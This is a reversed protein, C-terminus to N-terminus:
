WCPISISFEAGDASNAVAIQGNMNKEVIARTMYLGLGSGTLRDRTSFFPDFIRDIIEDSIGGGNDAIRIMARKDEATVVVRITGESIKRQQLADRSNNLTSLLVQTLENMHGSINKHSRADVFITIHAVSSSFFDVIKRVADDLCITVPATETRFFYRFNDITQSMYQLEDLTKRSHREMFETTLTGKAHAVQLAQISMGLTNLPQRWQHAIGAVMEGLAAFRSQQMILREKERGISLEEAVRQELTRNMTELFLQQETLKNQAETRATIDVVTGALSREGSDEIVTAFVEVNVIRGSKHLARTEYHSAPTEGNLRQQYNNSLLSLDEPHILTLFSTTGMLEEPRYGLMAAAANNVYQIMVNKDIVYVGVLANDTLIKFKNDNLTM